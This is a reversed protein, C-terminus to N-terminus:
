LWESFLAKSMRQILNAECEGLVGQLRMLKRVSEIPDVVDADITELEARADLCRKKLDDYKGLEEDKELGAYDEILVDKFVPLIRRVDEISQARLDSDSQATLVALLKGCANATDSSKEVVDKLHKQYAEFMLERARLRATAQLETIKVQLQVRTVFISVIAAIAAPGLVKVAELTVFSWSVDTTIM